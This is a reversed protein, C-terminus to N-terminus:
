GQVGSNRRRRCVRLNDAPYCRSISIKNTFGMVEDEIKDLWEKDVAEIRKEKM